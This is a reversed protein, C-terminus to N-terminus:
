ETRTNKISTLAIVTVTCGARYRCEPAPIRVTSLSSCTTMSNPRRKAASIASSRRSGPAARLLAQSDVEMALQPVRQAAYGLWEHGHHPWGEAQLRCTRGALRGAGGAYSLYGHELEEAELAVNDAQTAALVLMGKDFALQGLGRSGMPGPKFDAGVAAGSHCADIVLAMDGGDVPRLWRTLEASSISAALVADTPQRTKGPGIDTPLLYFDGGSEYFGHGSFSLFVADDPTAKRLKDANPIQARLAASVPRGALVDLVTRINQKSAAGLAGGQAITQRSVLPVTVVDEFGGRARLRAALTQEISAADNAAYKLDLLANEYANVGIVVLYARRAPRTVAAAVEYARHATGSKVRDANFAYASFDFKGSAQSGPGAPHKLM